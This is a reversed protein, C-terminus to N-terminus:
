RKILNLFLWAKTVTEASDVIFEIIDGTSVNTQWTTLDIDTNKIEATLTPKESGAISTTAPWTTYDACKIDVVLNGSVDSLLTWGTFTYNGDIERYGKSGTTIAVSAGDLTIGISTKQIYAGLSVCTYQNFALGLSANAALIAPVDVALGLSANALFALNVSANTAYENTTAILAFSADIETKSYFLSSIDVYDNLDSRIDNISGDYYESTNIYSSLPLVDNISLDIKGISTNFISTTIGIDIFGLSVNAALTAPVDVALGLSANTLLALNVSANTSFNAISTILAFSSDIEAQTYFYDSIDIPTVNIWKGWSSDYQLLDNNAVSVISTDTLGSLSTASTTNSMLWDISADRTALSGDVYAKTVDSTGDAVSPELLGDTWKFYSENLSADNIYNTLDYTQILGLSVNTLFAINVSANTAYPGIDVALGLSANAALTAPVDVALGLSANALFALNVSANTAYPTVAENLSADNIYNTLDYVEVLGLSVNTLFALNVSSNTAFNAISTILAFSADVQIKTYFYDTSEVVNNMSADLLGISTNFVNSLISLNGLSVNTLFASNVSSNTAYPAIDVALGLSANSYLALNVSANTAYPAIDVTLGLSVNTLFALNVSANTSYLCLSSEVNSKLAFSADIEERTYFYDTAIIGDNLSADIRNITEDQVNNKVFAAEVSADLEGISANHAYSLQSLIGLSSNSYFALGVSVNSAFLDLGYVAGLSVELSGTNWIFDNSLSANSIYNVLSISLSSSDTISLLNGAGDYYNDSVRQILNLYTSSVYKGTLELGM